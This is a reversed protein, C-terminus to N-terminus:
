FPANIRDIRARADTLISILEDRRPYIEDRRAKRANRAYRRLLDTVDEPTPIEAAAAFSETHYTM